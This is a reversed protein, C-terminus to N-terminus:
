QLRMVWVNGSGNPIYVLGKLQPMYHIKQYLGAATNRFGPPAASSGATTGPDHLTVAFTGANIAFYQGGVGRPVVYRDNIPDYDMGLMDLLSLADVANIDSPNGTLSQPTVQGSLTIVVRKTPAIYDGYRFLRNRSTDFAMAGNMAWNLAPDNSIVSWTNSTPVYRYITQTHCAYINGAPDQATVRAGLTTGPDDSSGPQAWTKTTWNLSLIRAGGPPTGSYMYPSTQGFWLARGIATSYQGSNYTHPPNPKQAGPAGWWLPPAPDGNRAMQREAVPTPEVAVSWGPNDSSLVLQLVENGSYDGHGGGFAIVTSDDRKLVVGSFADLIPAGVPGASTVVSTIRTNPVEHWLNLPLAAYWAPVGGGSSAVPAPPAVGERGRFMAARYSRAM